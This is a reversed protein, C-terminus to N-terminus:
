SQARSARRIPSKKFGAAATGHLQENTKKNTTVLTKDGRDKMTDATRTRAAAERRCARLVEKLGHFFVAEKATGPEARSANEAAM